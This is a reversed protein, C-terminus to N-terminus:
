KKDKTNQFKMHHTHMRKKKTKRLSINNGTWPPQQRKSEPQNAPMMDEFIGTPKREREGTKRVDTLM